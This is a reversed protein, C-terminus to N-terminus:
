WRGLPDDTQARGSRQNADRRIAADADDNIAGLPGNYESIHWGIGDSIRNIYKAVAEDKKKALVGNSRGLIKSTDSLDDHIMLTLVYEYSFKGPRHTVAGGDPDSLDKVYVRFMWNKPPFSFIAPEHMRHHRSSGRSQHEVIQQMNRFFREAYTRSAVHKSGRKEGFSGRITLDSLTAGLVQVVRGGITETVSTNIQFNWGVENPNLRFAVGPGNRFGLTAVGQKYERDAM